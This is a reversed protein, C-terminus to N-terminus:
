NAVRALLRGLAASVQSALETDSAADYAGYVQRDPRLLVVRAPGYEDAWAALGGDVDILDGGRDPSLSAYLCRAGLADLARRGAEDLLAKPDVGLGLLVFGDGLLTDLRVRASANTEVWPQHLNHGHSSEWDPASDPEWLGAGLPWRPAWGLQPALSPVVRSALLGLDRTLAKRWSTTQIIAGTRVADRVVRLAHPRRESSYTDLLAPDFRGEVVGALKWCLNFADRIGACLGQGLFPPTQHAADGLLFARGVRFERAVLSHFTYVKSRILKGQDPSLQPSLRGVHPAMMRRATAEDELHDPDDGPMLMFEWRIHQGECPVLTTPRRPDCIQMANRRFEVGDELVWDCVLWPEHCDLDELDVGCERRTPSSAGDCGLLFSARVTRGSGVEQAPSIRVSLADPEETFGDLQWGLRVEVNSFRGAGDRLHRELMPQNFFNGVPWGHNQPVHTVDVSQLTWGFANVFALHQATGSVARIEDSLGLSQFIRMVEGDFHVARPIDYIDPSPEVVLVRLGRQGLLNAAAAGTPGYGSIIVDYDTM